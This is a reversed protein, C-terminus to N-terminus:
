CMFYLKDWTIPANYIRYEFYNYKSVDHQSGDGM